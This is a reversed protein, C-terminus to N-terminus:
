RPPAPFGSSPFGGGPMSNIHPLFFGFFFIAALILGVVAMVIQFKVWTKAADGLGDGIPKGINAAGDILSRKAQAFEADNLTGADRLSQLKALEDALSM